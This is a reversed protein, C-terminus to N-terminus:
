PPTKGPFISWSDGLTSQRNKKAPPWYTATVAERAAANIEIQVLGEAFPALHTDPDFSRGYIDKELEGFDNFINDINKYMAHFCPPLAMGLDLDKSPHRLGMDEGKRLWFARTVIREVDERSPRPPPPEVGTHILEEYDKVLTVIHECVDDFYKELCICKTPCKGNPFTGGEELDDGFLPGSSSEIRWTCKV